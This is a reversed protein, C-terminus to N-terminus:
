KRLLIYFSRIFFFMDVCLKLLLGWFLSIAAIKVLRQVTIGGIVWNICDVPICFSSILYAYLTLIASVFVVRKNYDVFCKFLTEQSKMYDITDNSSQLIIAIFTLMFGFIGLGIAPFGNILESYHYKEPSIFCTVAFGIAFAAWGAYEEIIRGLSKM